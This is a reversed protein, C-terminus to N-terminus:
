YSWRTEFLLDWGEATFGAGIVLLTNRGLRAAGGVGGSGHLGETGFRFPEATAFVRGLDYFGFVKVEYPPALVLAYRVELGALAKDPGTFRGLPYGRLSRYGGVAVFPEESSELVEVEALPADGSVTEAAVRAAMFLRQVLHVYARASGTVRHYGMGSAFLGELLVGRHPDIEHDRTDVVAGVRIVADTFPFHRPDLGGGALDREFLTEGPLGRYANRSLTAGALLRFPGVVRRQVTARATTTTRSVRYFYPRAGTVSDASYFTENGLGYYGLRNQRQHTLLLTLRWGDWWAPAQAEARVVFSGETSAGGRVDAWALHPEPRDQVGIVPSFVRAFAGLWFGDTTSYFVGPAFTFDWYRQGALPVPAAVGLALLLAGVRRRV